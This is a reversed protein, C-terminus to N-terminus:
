VPYLALIMGGSLELFGIAGAPETVTGVFETGIIGKTPLSLSDHYFAVSKHLDNAV